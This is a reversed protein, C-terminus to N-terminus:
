KFVEIEQLLCKSNNRLTVQKDIGQLNIYSGKSIVLKQQNNPFDMFDPFYLVLVRLKTWFQTLNKFFGAFPYLLM